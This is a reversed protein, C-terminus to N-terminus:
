AGAHGTIKALLAAFREPANYSGLVEGIRSASDTYDPNRLLESVKERIKVATAQESRLLSGAGTRRVAEMNLHQDLNGPIGLLAVGHSLAQHTTPSGGNCIVLRARAAIENGPLYDSVFVNEPIRTMSIRGATTAVVIAGMSALAELVLPLLDSQGSSGFTVYILPKDIPLSDWWPPLPVSPSWQVPGLYYHNAPIACTPVIEPIDVYVTYDAWTYVKRMDWGLPRLGYAKRVTNLPVAHIAFALPRVLDFAAQGIGVGLRRTLVLDPVPFRTRAYPSWYANTIAVYPVGSLPASVALSLRFDGVIIDPQIDEILALDESVYGRLTAADYVPRSKSLAANFKAYSISQITRLAFSPKQFLNNYRPDCAFYVDYTDEDLAEALVWPRAVHALTVAEGFFLIRKRGMM